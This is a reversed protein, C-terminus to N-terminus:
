SVDPVATGDPMPNSATVRGDHDTPLGDGRGLTGLYNDFSHNEMMLVIIHHVEPLCDSGEPRDPFPRRSADQDPLRRRALAVELRSVLDKLNNM